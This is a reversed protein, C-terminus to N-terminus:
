KLEKGNVTVRQKEIKIDAVKHRNEPNKYNLLNLALSMLGKYKPNQSMSAKVAEKNSEAIRELLTHGLPIRFNKKNQQGFL